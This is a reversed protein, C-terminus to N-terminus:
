AVEHKYGVVRVTRAVGDVGKAKLSFPGGQPLYDADYIYDGLLNPVGAPRFLAKLDDFIQELVELAVEEDSSNIGSATKVIATVHVVLMRGERGFGGRHSDPPPEESPSHILILRNKLYSRLSHRELDDALTLVVNDPAESESWSCADIAAKVEKAYQNVMNGFWELYYIAPTGEELDTITLTAKEYTQDGVPFSPPFSDMARTVSDQFLTIEFPATEVSRGYWVQETHDSGYYCEVAVDTDKDADAVYVKLWLPTDWDLGEALVMGGPAITVGNQMGASLQKQLHGVAIGTRLTM